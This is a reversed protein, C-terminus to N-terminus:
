AVESLDVLLWEPCARVAELTEVPILWKGQYGAPQYAGELKGIRCLRRVSEESLELWLSAKYTSVVGRM